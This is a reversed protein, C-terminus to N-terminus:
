RSDTMRCVAHRELSEGTKVGQAKRLMSLLDPLPIEIWDIEGTQLANAATGPDPIMKWEMKDLLVRHGGAMYSPPEDRPVYRDFRAFGAHSALVHEDALWRFPGSGIVETIQKFPDTLAVREPMMLVPQVVKSLLARMHPFPKSLRWVITCDDAAQLADLRATLIVGVTDRKLWRRLSAVCDQARVKEGDHFLLGPRLRMTWRKGGDEMQDSEIMQPQPVGNADRGGM